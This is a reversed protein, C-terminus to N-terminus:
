NKKREVINEKILVVIGDSATVVYTEDDENLLIGPPQMHQCHSVQIHNVLLTNSEFAAVVGFRGCSRALKSIVDISDNWNITRDNLEIKPWYTGDGQETASEYYADFETLMHDLMLPIDIHLKAVLTEWSENSSLKIPQQYIIDGQDLKDSLKHFTVGAAESYCKLLWILPTPGRGLPLLTPHVNITRVSADPLPILWSYESSYFCDIGEATIKTIDEATPKHLSLPINNLRAYERIKRNYSQEACVFIHGVQHGHKLFVKLCDLYWDGGFYAIKM